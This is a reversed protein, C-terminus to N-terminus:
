VLIASSAKLHLWKAGGPKLPNLLHRQKVAAGIAQTEHDQVPLERGIDRVTAVGTGYGRNGERDKCPCWIM